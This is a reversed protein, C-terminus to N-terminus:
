EKRKLRAEQIVARKAKVDVVRGGENVLALVLDNISKTVDVLIEGSSERSFFSNPRISGLMSFLMKVRGSKLSEGLKTVQEDTLSIIIDPM